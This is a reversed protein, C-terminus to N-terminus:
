IIGNNTLFDFYKRSMSKAQFKDKIQLRGAVGIKKRLTPNNVLKELLDKWGSNDKPEVLFGSETDVIVEPIAGVRSVVVPIGVSMAEAMSYGFGEFDITPMVLIDFSSIIILPDGSLFGTFTITDELGNVFAMNKLEALFSDKGSGVIVLHAKEQLVRSHLFVELMTTHGKHPDIPSIIGILIRNQKINWKQKFDYLDNVYEKLELGNYIVHLNRLPTYTEMMNKSAQSVTISPVNLFRIGRVLIATIVALPGRVKSTPAHHVLLFTSNQTSKQQKGIIAAFWNTMGGPYGGNNSLLIDPSIEKLVRKFTGVFNLYINLNVCARSLKSSGKAARQFVGDLTRITVSPNKLRQKLFSLGENDPNSLVVFKDDSNPWYNILHALHTDVGGYGRQEYYILIKKL